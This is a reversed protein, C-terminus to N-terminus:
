ATVPAAERHPAAGDPPEDEESGDRVLDPAAPHLQQRLQHRHCHVHLLLELDSARRKRMGVHEGIIQAARLHQQQGRLAPVLGQPRLHPLPQLSIQLLPGHHDVIGSVEFGARSERQHLLHQASHGPVVLLTEKDEALGRASCSTVGGPASWRGTSRQCPSPLQETPTARSRRLLPTRAQHLEVSALRVAGGRASLRTPHLASGWGAM